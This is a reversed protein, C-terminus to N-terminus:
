QHRLHQLTRRILREAVGVTHDFAARAELASREVAVRFGGDLTVSLACSVRPSNGAWGKRKMRIELARIRSGFKGLKGQVRQCLYAQSSDDSAVGFSQVPICAPSSEPIEM